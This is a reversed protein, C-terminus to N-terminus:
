GLTLDPRTWKHSHRVFADFKQALKSSRADDFENGL